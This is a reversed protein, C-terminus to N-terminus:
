VTSMVGEVKMKSELVLEETNIRFCVYFHSTPIKLINKFCGGAQSEFLQTTELIFELRKQM